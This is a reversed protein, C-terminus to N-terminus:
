GAGEPRLRGRPLRAAGRASANVRHPDPDVDRIGRRDDEERGGRPPELVGPVRDRERRPAEGAGVEDQAAVAEAAHEGRAVAAATEARAGDAEHVAGGLEEARRGAAPEVDGGAAVGAHVTDSL